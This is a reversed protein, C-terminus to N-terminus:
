KTASVSESAVSKLYSLYNLYLEFPKNHIIPMGNFWRPRDQCWGHIDCPIGSIVIDVTDRLVDYIHYIYMVFSVEPYYLPTCQLLIHPIVRLIRPHNDIFVWLLRPDALDTPISALLPPLPPLENRLIEPPVHVLAYEYTLTPKKQHLAHYIMKLSDGLGPIHSYNTFPAHLPFSGYKSRLMCGPYKLYYIERIKQIHDLLQLEHDTILIMNNKAHEWVNLLFETYLSWMIRAEPTSNCKREWRLEMDRLIEAELQPPIKYLHSPLKHHALPCFFPSSVMIENVKGISPMVPIHLLPSDGRLLVENKYTEEM